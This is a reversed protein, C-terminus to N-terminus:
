KDAQFIRLQTIEGEQQSSWITDLFEKRICKKNQLVKPLPREVTDGAVSEKFKVGTQKQEELDEWRTFQLEDLEKLNM